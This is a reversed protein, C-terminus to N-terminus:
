MVGGGDIMIHTQLSAKCLGHPRAGVDAAFDASGLPTKAFFITDKCDLLTLARPCFRNGRRWLLSTFCQM